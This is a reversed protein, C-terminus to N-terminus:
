PGGLLQQALRGKPLGVPGRTAVPYAIFVFFLLMSPAIFFYSWKHRAWFRQVRQFATTQTATTATM